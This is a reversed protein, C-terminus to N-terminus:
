SAAQMKDSNGLVRDVEAMAAFKAPDLQVACGVAIVHADPNERKLRRLTQVSQREAEKTVACTNVIIANQLGADRAHARMIESEYANLRCGLSVVKPAQDSSKM